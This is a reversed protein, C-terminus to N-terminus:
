RPERTPSIKGDNLDAATQDLLRALSPVQDVTFYYRFLQTAADLVAWRVTDWSKLPPESRANPLLALADAWQPHGNKYDRLKDATSAGLPFSGSTEVLRAQTQPSVLWKIFLWAALQKQQDSPFISYSPGYVDFAPNRAASPFPLVTWEDGNTTLDFVKMQYPIDMVSGTRFLGGRGAFAQEPAQTTPLWACGADYLKRLFTFTDKVQPTNFQYGDGGANVVDGGSAYIWGLIAPYDTSIIYGGTGDNQKDKDQKNARSAACAQLKFQDLTTPAQDFGLEKAWTQNYFLFQGSRQAPIGWRSGNSIDQQWFPLYFDSQEQNSLGWKLDDVYPGLDVLGKAAKWALAQHLYGVAVDPASGSKLAARVNESLDDLNSFEKPLVVIGWQNNVNFDQVLKQITDSGDGAGIHWFQLIAGHLRSPDVALPARAIATATPTRKPQSSASTSPQASPRASPLPTGAPRTETAQISPVNTQCAFLTLALGLLFVWIFPRKKTQTGISM